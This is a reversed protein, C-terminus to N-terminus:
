VEECELRREVQVHVLLLSIVPKQLSDTIHSPPPHTDPPPTLMAFEAVTAFSAFM